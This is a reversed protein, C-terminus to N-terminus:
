VSQPASEQGVAVTGLALTGGNGPVGSLLAQTGVGTLAFTKDNDGPDQDNSAIDLSAARTGQAIPVFTVTITAAAGAFITGNCTQPTPCLPSSLKFDAAAARVTKVSFTLPAGGTNSITLPLSASGGIHVNGFNNVPPVPAIAIDPKVATCSLTATPS